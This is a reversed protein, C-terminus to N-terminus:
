SFLLLPLLILSAPAAAGGGSLNTGKLSVKRKLKNEQIFLSDEMDLDDLTLESKQLRHIEDNYMKMLNELYAIQPSTDSFVVNVQLVRVM